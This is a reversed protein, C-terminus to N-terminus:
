GHRRLNGRAVEAVAAWVATFLALLLARSPSFFNHRRLM